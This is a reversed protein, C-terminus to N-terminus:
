RARKASRLAGMVGVLGATLLFGAGPEPVQSAYSRTYDFGSASSVSWTSIAHGQDDLVADIGGWDASSLFNAAATSSLSQNDWLAGSSAGTQLEVFLLTWDPANFKVALSFSIVSPIGGRVGNVGDATVTHTVLGNAGAVSVSAMANSSTYPYNAPSAYVDGSVVLHGVMTGMAGPASSPSNFTLRDQFGITSRALAQANPARNQGVSTSTGAGMQSKLAGFTIFSTAHAAAYSGSQADSVGDNVLRSSAYEWVPQYSFSSGGSTSASASGSVDHYLGCVTGATPSFQCDVNGPVSTAASASVSCTMLAVFFSWGAVQCRTLRSRSPHCNSVCYEKTLHQVSLKFLLYRRLELAITSLFRLPTM